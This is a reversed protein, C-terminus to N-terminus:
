IILINKSISNDQKYVNEYQLIVRKIKSEKTILVMNKSLAASLINMDVIDNYEFKGGCLILDYAYALYIKRTIEKNSEINIFANIYKELTKPSCKINNKKVLEDHNFNQIKVLKLESNENLIKNYYEISLNAFISENKQDNFNNEQEVIAKAIIYGGKRLLELASRSIVNVYKEIKEEQINHAIMEGEDTIESNIKSVIIIMLIASLFGIYNQLIHKSVDVCLEKIRKYNMPLISFIKAFRRKKAILVIKYDYLNQRTQEFFFRTNELSSNKFKEFLTIDTISYTGKPLVITSLESLICTDLMYNMNVINFGKLEIPYVAM